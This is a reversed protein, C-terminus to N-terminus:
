CNVVDTTAILDHICRQDERFIFCYDVLSFVGVVSNIMNPVFSRILVANIFGPNEGTDSKIIKIKMMRKGITQGRNSLIVLQYISIILLPIFLVGLGIVTTLMGGTENEGASLAIGVFIMILGPTISVGLILSDILQALFRSMRTAKDTTDSVKSTFVMSDSTSVETSTETTPLLEEKKVQELPEGCNFCFRATEDNLSGCVPCRM